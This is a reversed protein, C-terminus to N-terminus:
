VFYKYLLHVINSWRGLRQASMTCINYLHKTNAPIILTGKVIYYMKKLHQVKNFYPHRFALQIYIVDGSTYDVLSYNVLQSIDRQESCDPSPGKSFVEDNIYIIVTLGPTATFGHISGVVYGEVENVHITSTIGTIDLETFMYM